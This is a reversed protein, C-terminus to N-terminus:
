DPASTGGTVAVPRAGLRGTRGAATVTSSLDAALESDTDRRANVVPLADPHHASSRWPKATTAQTIQQHGDPDKGVPAKAPPPGMEGEGYRDAIWLRYEARVNLEGGRLGSRYRDADRGAGLGTLDKTNGLRRM